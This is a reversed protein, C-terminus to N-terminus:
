LAKGRLGPTSRCGAPLKYALLNSGHQRVQVLGPPRPARLMKDGQEPARRNLPFHLTGQGGGAQGTSLVQSEEEDWGEATLELVQPTGVGSAWGPTTEGAEAAARLGGSGMGQGHGGLLTRGVEAYRVGEWRAARLEATRQAAQKAERALDCESAGRPGRRPWCTQLKDCNRGTKTQNGGVGRLPKGSLGTDRTGPM